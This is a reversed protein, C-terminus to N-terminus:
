SNSVHIPPIRDKWPIAEELAGAIRFLTSEDGFPGVLQVGIPLGSKSMGLPLSMGPNGAVSAPLLYQCYLDWRYYTNLVPLKEPLITITPTILLDYQKFFRYINHRLENHAEMGAFLRIGNTERGRNLLWKTIDDLQSEDIAMGIDHKFHEFASAVLVGTVDADFEQFKRYDIPYIAEEVHHGMEELQKATNNVVAAVEPDVAQEIMTESWVAVKLKGPDASLEETYPRDPKPVTRVEDAGPGEVADLLVASDRVSRTVAFDNITGIPYDRFDPGISVRGRTTKLGVLGCCSAPLRISGGMDNAHAIPVIGASVSAAPGGSSGGSTHEINWPNSTRGHLPSETSCSMGFEPVAGRGISILGAKQFKEILYGTERVVNGKLLLSGMEQLRGAEGSGIDKLIYPVGTFPAASDEPLDNTSELRDYFLELVANLQPNLKEAGEIALRILERPAVERKRVLEALGLGDYKSYETINM